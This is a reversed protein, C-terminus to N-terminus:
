DQWPAAGGCLSAVEAPSALAAPSPGDAAGRVRLRELPLPGHGAILVVNGARRARLVPGAGLAAVTAFAERLGAAIARVDDMPPADVVNIALAGGPAVIRAADALACATALHRPVRAGVFADILLADVSADDRGALWARGDAIKVKLGPAKRLGLHERALAVVEPDVEVVHQRRTQARDSAALARALACGAGGVHVIRRARLAEVLDRMRRLYDFELHRPDALDVYSADMDGQRLLRGSPRDADRQVLLEGAQALIEPGSGRRAM